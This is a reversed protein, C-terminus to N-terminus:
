NYIIEIGYVNVGSGQSAFYYTSAATVTFEVLYLKDGAVNKIDGVIATPTVTKDVFTNDYLAVDRTEQSNSAMCYIRITAGPAITNIKISRHENTGEGGLQIRYTFSYEGYTKSNANINVASGEEATISVFDNLIFEETYTSNLQSVIDSDIFINEVEDVTVAEVTYTVETTATMVEGKADYDTFTVTAIKDTGIATSSFNEINIRSDNASIVATNGSGYTATFSWTNRMINVGAKQSTITGEATANFTLSVLKDVVYVLTFGDIKDVQTGSPMTYNEYDAYIAYTGGVDATFKNNTIPYEKQGLYASFTLDSHNVPESGEIIGNADAVYVSIGSVDIEATPSDSTLTYTDQPQEEVSPLQLVLGAATIVQVTFTSEITVGRDTYSVVIPYEGVVNKNYASSDIEVEDSVDYPDSAQQNIYDYDIAYVELGEASFEEGDNYVLKEVGSIDINLRYPRVSYRSTVTYTASQTGNDYSYSVTITYTGGVDKNYQSSDIVCDSLPVETVTLGVGSANRTSRTVVLGEASFEEGVYYETKAGSADVSISVLSSTPTGGQSQENNVCGALTFALVFVLVAALLAKLKKM